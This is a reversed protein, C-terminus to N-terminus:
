YGYIHSCLSLSDNVGHPISTLELTEGVPVLSVSNLSRDPRGGLTPKTLVLVDASSVPDLLAGQIVELNETLLSDRSNFM